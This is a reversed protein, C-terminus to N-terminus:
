IHILSLLYPRKHYGFWPKIDSIIAFTPKLVGPFMIVTSIRQVEAASVNLVTEAMPLLIVETVMRFFGSFGMHVICLYRLFSADFTGHVRRVFLSTARFPYSATRVFPNGDNAGSSSSSLSSSGRDDARRRKGISAEFVLGEADNERRHDHFADSSSSQARSFAFRGM